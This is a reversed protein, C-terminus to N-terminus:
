TAARMGRGGWHACQPVTISTHDGGSIMVIEIRQAVCWEGPPFADRRRRETRWVIIQWGAM